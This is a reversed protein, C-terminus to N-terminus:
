SLRFLHRKVECLGEKRNPVDDLNHNNKCLLCREPKPAEAEVFMLETKLKAVQAAVDVKRGM